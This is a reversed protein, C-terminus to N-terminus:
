DLKGVLKGVNMSVAGLPAGKGAIVVLSGRERLRALVVTSEDEDIFVRNLAGRPYSTVLTHLTSRLRGIGQPPGDPGHAEAVVNGDNSVISAHLAFDTSNIFANLESELGEDLKENDHLSMRYEEQAKIEDHLKLAQMVARHLDMDVTNKETEVDIRFEFSAETLAVVGVLADMGETDEIEAHILSGKKYYIKAKKGNATLTLEGTKKGLHPFQLLDIINLDALTGRLPM